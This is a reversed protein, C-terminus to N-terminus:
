CEGGLSEATAFVDIDEQGGPTFANSLAVAVSRRRSEYDKVTVDKGLEELMEDILMMAPTSHRRKLVICLAKYLQELSSADRDFNRMLEMRRVQELSSADRNFNLMLEMRRVLLALMEEDVADAYNTVLQELENKSEAQVMELLIEARKAMGEDESLGEYTGRGGKVASAPEIVEVTSDDLGEGQEEQETKSAMWEDIFAEDFDDENVEYQMSLLDEPLPEPGVKVADIGAKPPDKSASNEQNRPTASPCYSLRTPRARTQNLSGLAQM